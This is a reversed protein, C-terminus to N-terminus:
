RVAPGRRVGGATTTDRVRVGESTMVVRQM